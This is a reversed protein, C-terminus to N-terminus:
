KKAKQRSNKASNQRTALVILQNRLNADILIIAAIITASGAFFWADLDESLIVLGLIIANIPILLTTISANTAGVESILIIFLRYAIATGFLGLSCAAGIAVLDINGQPVGESALAVPLTIIAAWTVMGTAMTAPPIHRAFPRTSVAYIGYCVTALVCLSTGLVLSTNGVGDPGLLMAVGFVGVALGAFRLAQFREQGVIIAFLFTFAPMMANVVGATSSNVYQQGTTFFAFPLACGFLGLYALRAGHRWIARLSELRNPFILFMFAAGTGVRLFVLTIPGFAELGLEFFMFSSGWLM